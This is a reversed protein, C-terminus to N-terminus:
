VGPPEALGLIVVVPRGAARRHADLAERLVDAQRSNDQGEGIASEQSLVVHFGASDSLEVIRRREALPANEVLQGISAIREGTHKGGTFMLASTRDTLYLGVSLIHSVTLGIILVLLTRTAITDPILRKM